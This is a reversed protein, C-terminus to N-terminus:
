ESIKEKQIETFIEKLSDLDNYTPFTNWIHFFRAYEEDNLLEGLEHLAGNLLDFDEYISDIKSLAIKANVHIKENDTLDNSTKELEIDKVDVIEYEKMSFQYLPYIERKLESFGSWKENSANFGLEEEIGKYVKEVTGDDHKLYMNEKVQVGHKDHYIQVEKTM